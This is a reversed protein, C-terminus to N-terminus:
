LAERHRGPETPFARAGAATVRLGLAVVSLPPPSAVTRVRTSAPRPFLPPWGGVRQPPTFGWAARIEERGCTQVARETSLHGGRLETIDLWRSSEVLEDTFHPCAARERENRVTIADSLVVAKWVPM